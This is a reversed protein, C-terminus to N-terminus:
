EYLFSVKKIIGSIVSYEETMKAIKLNNGEIILNNNLVKIIIKEDTVQKLDIIYNIIIEEHYINILAETDRIVNKIKKILAM